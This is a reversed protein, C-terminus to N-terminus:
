EIFIEMCIFFSLQLSIVKVTGKKNGVTIKVNEKSIATQISHYEKVHM